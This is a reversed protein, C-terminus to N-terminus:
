SLPLFLSLIGKKMQCCKERRSITYPTVVVTRRRDIGIKPVSVFLVPVNLPAARKEIDRLTKSIDIKLRFQQRFTRVFKVVVM